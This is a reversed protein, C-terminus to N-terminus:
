IPSDEVWTGSVSGDELWGTPKSPLTTSDTGVFMEAEASFSLIVGAFLVSDSGQGSGLNVVADTSVALVIAQATEVPNQLAAGVVLPQSSLPFSGLAGHSLM